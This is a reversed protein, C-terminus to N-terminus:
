VRVQLYETPDYDAILRALHEQGERQAEDISAWAGDGECGSSTIFNGKCDHLNWEFFDVRWGKRWEWDVLETTVRHYRPDNAARGNKVVEFDLAWCLAAPDFEDKYLAKVYAIFEDASKFGEAKADERSIAGWSERRIRTIHVSMPSKSRYDIQVPCVAGVQYLTYLRGNKNRRQVKLIDGTETDTTIIDTTQYRRRTQTKERWAVKIALELKFLLSPM